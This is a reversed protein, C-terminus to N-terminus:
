YGVQSSLELYVTGECHRRQTKTNSECHGLYPSNTWVSHKETTRSSTKPDLFNAKGCKLHHNWRKLLRGHLYAKEGENISSGGRIFADEMVIILQNKTTLFNALEHHQISLKYNPNSIAYCYTTSQYHSITKYSPFRTTIEKTEYKHKQTLSLTM